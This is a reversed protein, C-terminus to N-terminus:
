IQVIQLCFNCDMFSEFIIVDDLEMPINLLIRENIDNKVIGLMTIKVSVYMLFFVEGIALDKFEEVLCALGDIIKMNIVNHM